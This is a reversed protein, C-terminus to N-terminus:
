CERVEKKFVNASCTKRQSAGYDNNAPREINFGCVNANHIVNNCNCACSDVFDYENDLHHYHDHNIHDYDYVNYNSDYDHNFHDHNRCRAVVPIHIRGRRAMCKFRGM